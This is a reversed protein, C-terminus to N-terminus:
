TLHTRAQMLAFGLLNTGPWHAPDPAHTHDASLGIGWVPDLPSAEVIVRDGTDRLRARLEPSSAFKAVNGRVVIDFRHAAWVDEDFGVVKRGAAKAAGPNRAHHVRHLAEEDGFLRAKEAMMYHEASAYRVSGLEFTHEFWQSFVHNGSRTPRHGWFYVFRSRDGHWAM